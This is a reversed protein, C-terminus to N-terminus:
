QLRQLYNKRQYCNIYIPLYFYYYRLGLAALLSLAINDCQQKFGEECSLTSDGGTPKKYLKWNM